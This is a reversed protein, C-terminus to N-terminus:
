GTAKRRSVTLKSVVSDVDTVAEATGVVTKEESKSKVRGRLTVVGGATDVNIRPLHRLQPNEGITTRVRQTIMDDDVFPKKSSLGSKERIKHVTGKMKGEEYHIERDLQKELNAARSRLHETEQTLWARAGKGTKPATLMGVVVGAAFIFLSKFFSSNKNEPM